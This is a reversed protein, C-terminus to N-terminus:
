LSPGDGVDLLTDISYPSQLGLDKASVEADQNVPICPKWWETHVTQISGLLWTDWPNLGKREVYYPWYLIPLSHWVCIRSIYRRHISVHGVSLSYRSLVRLTTPLSRSFFTDCGVWCPCSETELLNFISSVQYWARTGWFRLSADGLEQSGVALFQSPVEETWQVPSSSGRGHVLYSQSPEAGKCTLPCSSACPTWSTSM